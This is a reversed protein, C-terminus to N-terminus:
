SVRWCRVLNEEAIKYCRIKFKPNHRKRYASVAGQIKQNIPRTDIGHEFPVDFSDGIEMEIFNYVTNARYKPMEKDKNIKYM